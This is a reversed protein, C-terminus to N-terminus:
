GRVRIAWTLKVLNKVVGPVRNVLNISPPRKEVIRTPIEVVRLSARHARIVLESAFVDRDVQCSAVIPLIRDRRLAKLGHTDTGRFGVLFRLTATYALSACHRFLPREDKAGGVLKSGVVLDAADQELLELASKYFDIDGLDIEDCVVYRGRASELGQRLALGYNPTSSTVIRLEPWERELAYATALTGDTSGNEALVLEFVYGLTLLRSRLDTLASRLLKEENFVPIVVSIDPQSLSM